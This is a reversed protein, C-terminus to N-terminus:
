ESCKLNAELMGLYHAPQGVYKEDQFVYYVIGKNTM